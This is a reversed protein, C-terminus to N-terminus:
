PGPGAVRVPSGQALDPTPRVIVAEDGRLGDLVQAKDEGRVGIKVPTRQAKGERVTWVYGDLVADLPILLANQEERVIINVETTMGIRLPTDDPLAIRVRYSKNVPDGLPTIEAVRGEQVQGPFADAKILTRQGSRVQPIDEEDVEATIRLPRPRGVSFVVAGKDVVEGVEGDERLVMGDMPSVLETEGLIRRAARRTAEAQQLESRAQDYSQRSVLRKDMLQKNRDLESQLFDVRADLQAVNARLERDDLRALVAGEVVHDGDRVLIAALRGALKPGVKAWYVPEVTGTAYVAEVAPGRSPHEVRVLPRARLALLYVGAALCALLVLGYLGRRLRV